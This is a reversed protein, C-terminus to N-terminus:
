NPTYNHTTTKNTQFGRYSNLLGQERRRPFSLPLTHPPPCHCVQIGVAEPPPHRAFCSPPHSLSNLFVCKSGRTMALLTHRDLLYFASRANRGCVYQGPNGCDYALTKLTPTARRLSLPPHRWEMLISHRECNFQQAYGRLQEFKANSTKM